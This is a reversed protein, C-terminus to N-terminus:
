HKPVLPLLIRLKLGGQVVNHTQTEFFLFLFLISEAAPMEGILSEKATGSFV